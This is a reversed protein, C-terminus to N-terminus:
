TKRVSRSASVTLTRSDQSIVSPTNLTSTGYVARSQICVSQVSASAKITVKKQKSWVSFMTVRRGPASIFSESLNLRISQTM